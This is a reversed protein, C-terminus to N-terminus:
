ETIFAAITDPRESQILTELDDLGRLTECDEHAEGQSCRGCSVAPAKLSGPMLPEFPTKNIAAANNVSLAGFTVGHYSGMRSIVKYRKTEGRNFQWQKAMRLATEVAEAGGNVFFSRTIGEPTVEGIRTALDVAPRTAYAFPNAFALREMQERAVEALERRGHGVAVVWLGS